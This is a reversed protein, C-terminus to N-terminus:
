RSEFFSGLAGLTPTMAPPVSWAHTINGSTFYAAHAWILLVVELSCSSTSFSAERKPQSTTVRQGLFGFSILFLFNSFSRGMLVSSVSYIVCFGFDPRNRVYMNRESSFRVSFASFRVSIQRIKNARVIQLGKRLGYLYEDHIEMTVPVSVAVKKIFRRGGSTQFRQAIKVALLSRFTMVSLNQLVRAHARADALWRAM